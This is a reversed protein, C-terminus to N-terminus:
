EPTKDDMDKQIQDFKNKFMSGLSSSSAPTNKEQFQRYDSLEENKIEGMESLILNKENANLDVVTVKIEKGVSYEKPIDKNGSLLQGRPIFGLMGNQLRVNIGSTKSIEIVGTHVAEMFEKSSSTWPDAEGTVLELSLKKNAKDVNLIKVNIITGMTLVDEPKNIRKVFSMNSIHIFGEIGPELEVFAGSKIFNVVKGNRTSGVEYDV